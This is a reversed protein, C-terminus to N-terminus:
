PQSGESHVDGRREKVGNALGLGRAGGRDDCGERRVQTGCRGGSRRCGGRGLCGRGDRKRARVGVKGQRCERHAHAAHGARGAHAADLALEALEVAHLGLDVEGGFGRADREGGRVGVLFELRGELGVGLEHEAFRDGVGREGYEVDLSECVGRMRM